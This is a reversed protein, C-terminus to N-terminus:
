FNGGIKIREDCRLHCTPFNENSVRSILNINKGNSLSDSSAYNKM